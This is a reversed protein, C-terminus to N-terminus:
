VRQVQRVSLAAGAIGPMVTSATFGYATPNAEVMDVLLAMDVATFHVGSTTLAAFLANTWFSALGMDGQAGRVLITQAGALQLARIADATSMAQATLFAQQDALTTFNDKAYTRDNGGTGIEYLANPNAM